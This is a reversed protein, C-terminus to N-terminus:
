SGQYCQATTSYICNLDYYNGLNKIGDGSFSMTHSGIYENGDAVIWNSDVVRYTSGSVYVVIASHGYTQRLVDGASITSSTLLSISYKTRYDSSNLNTDSPLIRWSGSGISSSGSHFVGSRYALLNSFAKCQAGRPRTSTTCSSAQCTYKTAGNTAGYTPVTCPTYGGTRCSVYYATVSDTSYGGTSSTLYGWATPDYDIYSYYKSGSPNTKGATAKAYYSTSGSSIATGYWCSQGSTCNSSSSYDGSMAFSAEWILRSRASAESAFSHMEPSVKYAVNENQQIEEMGLQEAWPLLTKDDNRIRESLRANGELVPDVAVEWLYLGLDEVYVRDIPTAGETMPAFALRGDDMFSHLSSEDVFDMLYYGNELVEQFDVSHDIRQLFEGTENYVDVYGLNVFAAGFAVYSQTTENEEGACGIWFSSTVAVLLFLVLSLNHRM